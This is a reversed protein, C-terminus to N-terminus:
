PNLLEFEGPKVQMPTNSTNDDDFIATCLDGTNCRYDTGLTLNSVDVWTIVNTIPDVQKGYEKATRSTPTFASQTVVLGFGVILAVLGFNIKKFM